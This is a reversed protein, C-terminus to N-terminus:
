EVEHNDDDKRYYLDWKMGKYWYNTMDEGMAIDACIIRPIRGDLRQGDIYIDYKNEVGM